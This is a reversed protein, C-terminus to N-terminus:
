KSRSPKGSSRRRNPHVVADQSNSCSCASGLFAVPTCGSASHGAVPGSSTASQISHAVRWVRRARGPSSGATIEPPILWRVLTVQRTRVNILILACILSDFSVANNRLRKSSASRSSQQLYDRASFLTVLHGSHMVKYGEPVYQHSRIIVDIGERECFKHTIDPGFTTVDHGRANGHVGRAM